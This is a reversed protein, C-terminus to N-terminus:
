SKSREFEEEVLRALEDIDVPRNVIEYITQNGHVNWKRLIKLVEEYDFGTQAAIKTATWKRKNEIESEPAIKEYRMNSEKREEGKLAVM